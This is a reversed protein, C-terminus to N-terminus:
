RDRKINGWMTSLKGNGYPQISVVGGNLIDSFFVINEELGRTIHFHDGNHEITIYPINSEELAKVFGAATALGNGGTMGLIWFQLPFLKQNHASPLSLIQALNVAGFGDLAGVLSFVDPRSLGIFISGTAGDSHGSIARGQRSSITRYHGDVFPVIEQAIYDSATPLFRLPDRPPRRNMDPSVIILPKAEKNEFLRDASLHVNYEVNNGVYSGGFFLENDAWNFGWAGHLLYLVPYALESTDYEEPLYVSLEREATDGVAAMVESRIQHHEVRGVAFALPQIMLTILWLEIAFVFLRSRKMMMVEMETRGVAKCGNIVVQKLWKEALLWVM